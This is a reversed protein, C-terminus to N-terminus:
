THPSLILDNLVDHLINVPPTFTWNQYDLGYTLPAGFPWFHDLCSFWFRM